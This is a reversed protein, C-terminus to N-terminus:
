LGKITGAARKVREGITALMIGASDLSGAALQQDAPWRGTQEWQALLAAVAGMEQGIAALTMQDTALQNRVAEIQPKSDMASM